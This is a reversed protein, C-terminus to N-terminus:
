VKEIFFMTKSIKGEQLLITKAPAEVQKFFPSFITWPDKNKTVQQM